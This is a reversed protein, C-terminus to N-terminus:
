WGNKSGRPYRLPGDHPKWDDDMFRRIRRQEAAHAELARNRPPDIPPPSPESAAPPPPPGRRPPTVDVANSHDATYTGPPEIIPDPDIVYLEMVEHRPLPGCAGAAAHEGDGIAPGCKWINESLRGGDRIRVEMAQVPKSWQRADIRRQREAKLEALFAARKESESLTPPQDTKTM